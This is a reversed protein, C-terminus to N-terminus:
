KKSPSQDLPSDFRAHQHKALHATAPNMAMEYRFITEMRLDTQIEIAKTKEEALESSRRISAM